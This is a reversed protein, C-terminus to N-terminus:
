RVRVFIVPYRGDIYRQGGATFWRTGEIRYNGTEVAEHVALSLCLGNRVDYRVRRDAKPEIHHAEARLPDVQRTPYVRRGTKRDKWRDRDKVRRAWEALRERDERDRVRRALVRDLPTVRPPKPQARPVRQVATLTKLRELVTM